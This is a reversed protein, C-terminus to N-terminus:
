KQHEWRAALKEMFAELREMRTELSAPAQAQERQLVMQEELVDLAWESFTLGQARAHSYLRNKLEEAIRIRM